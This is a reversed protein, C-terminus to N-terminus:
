DKMHSPSFTSSAWPTNKVPVVHSFGLFSAARAEPLARKILLSRGSPRRSFERSSFAEEPPTRTSSTDQTRQNRLEEATRHHRRHATRIRQPADNQRPKQTPLQSWIINLFSRWRGGGFFGHWRFVAELKINLICFFVLSTSSSLKPRGRMLHFSYCGRRWRTRLRGALLDCLHTSDLPRLEQFIYSVLLELM